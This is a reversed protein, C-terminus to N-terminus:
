GYAKALEEGFPELLELLAPVHKPFRQQAFQALRQLADLAVAHRNLEPALRKMASMTKNFSDALSALMQARAAPEMDKATRLADIAAQHQALYDELLKRSLANFSEDGLANAARAEDWNDGAAKAENKWRRGTGLPLGMAGCAPEMDLRKFIYLGRLQQRREPKHAM